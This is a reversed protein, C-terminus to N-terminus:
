GGQGTLLRTAWSLFVDLGWFFLGAIIVFGFVVATTMGTEQRTPWVVKRLEQRASQMFAWFARGSSSTAFVAAALALGVLVALWRVWDARTGLVYFGAIGGLVLLVAIALKATDAGGGVGHDPVQENMPNIAAQRGM